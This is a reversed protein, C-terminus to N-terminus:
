AFRPDAVGPRKSAVVAAKRLLLGSYAFMLIFPTYFIAETSLSLLFIAMMWWKARFFRQRFLGIFFVLALPFGVTYVVTILGNSNGRNTINEDSLRAEKYGYTQAELYYRQYDFGIGFWPNQKAIEWGTQLDYNRAEASGSNDGYLKSNLNALMLFSLPVLLIPAIVLAMWKETFSATRLYNLFYVGATGCALVIGATSQTAIVGAMALLVEKRQNFVFAAIFLYINLYLQFVGPEFFFGNPRHLYLSPDDVMIHYNFIGFMTIIDNEQGPNYVTVFLFPTLIAFIPTLIAQWSMWFFIPRLDGALTDRPLDCYVGLLVAGLLFNSYRISLAVIDITTSGALAVILVALMLLGVAGMERRLGFSSGKIVFCLVFVAIMLPIRPIMSSGGSMLIAIFMLLRRLAQLMGPSIRDGAALMSM